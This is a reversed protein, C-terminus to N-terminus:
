LKRNANRLEESLSAIEYNLQSLKESNSSSVDNRIQTKLKLRYELQSVYDFLKRITRKNPVFTIDADEAVKGAKVLQDLTINAIPDLMGAVEPLINEISKVTQAPIAGGWKAGKLAKILNEAGDIRKQSLAEEVMMDAPRASTSMTVVNNIIHDTTRKDAVQRYAGELNRLLAQGQDLYVYGAEIGEAETDFKRKKQYSQLGGVRGGMAQAEMIEGNPLVKGMVRRGAYVGGDEFELENINIGEVKLM